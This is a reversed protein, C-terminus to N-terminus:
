LLAKQETEPVHRTIFMLVLMVVVLLASGMLLAYDELKLVGYLLAYLCSLLAAMIAGHRKSAMISGMYLSVSIIPVLTALGYALSFPLHESLSLLLLYFLTMACTIMLYQILSVNRKLSLEFILLTICSLLIFLLGYKVARHIQGYHTVPQFLQAYAEVETLNQQSQTSFQQPYNRTLHSVQWTAKFGQNDIHRSTPLLGKFSPHPWDAAFTLQTQQGLPLASIAQSGRLQIAFDTDLQTHKDSLDVLRHFGSQLGPQESLGTGPMLEGLTPQQTASNVAILDFRSVKDIAQNASVAFVIRANRYDFRILNAVTLNSLDFQAKGSINGKYVLSEFIGRSLLDHQVAIDLDLQKPLIVLESNFHSRVQKIDGNNDVSNNVIEYTYPMVLVPGAVRQAHGWSNGIDDIVQQQLAQRDSTIDMLIGLPIFSLLAIVAILLLKSNIPSQQMNLSKFM